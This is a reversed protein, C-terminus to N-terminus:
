EYLDELLIDVYDDEIVCFDRQCYLCPGYICLRRQDKISVQLFFDLDGETDCKRCTFGLNDEDIELSKCHPCILTPPM